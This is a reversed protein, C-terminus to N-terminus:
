LNSEVLSLSRRCNCDERIKPKTKWCRSSSSNGDNDGMRNWSGSSGCFIDIPCNYSRLKGLLFADLFDVKIPMILNLRKVDNEIRLELDNNGPNSQVAIQVRSQDQEEREEM